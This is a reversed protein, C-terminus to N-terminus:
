SANPFTEVKNKWIRVWFLCGLLPSGGKNLLYGKPSAMVARKLLPIGWIQNGKAEQFGGQFNKKFFGGKQFGGIPDVGLLAKKEKEGQPSPKKGRKPNGKLFKVGSEQRKLNFPEGM